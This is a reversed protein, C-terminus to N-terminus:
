DNKLNNKLYFLFLLLELNNLWTKKLFQKLECDTNLSDNFNLGNTSGYSGSKQYDAPIIVVKEKDAKKPRYPNLYYTKENLFLKYSEKFSSDNL